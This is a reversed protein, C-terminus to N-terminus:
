LPSIASPCAFNFAYVNKQDGVSNMAMGHDCDLTLYTNYPDDVTTVVINSTSTWSVNYKSVAQDALNDQCYELLLYVM